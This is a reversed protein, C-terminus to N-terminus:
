NSLKTTNYIQPSLTLDLSYDNPSQDFSSTYQINTKEYWIFFHLKDSKGTVSYRLNNDYIHYAHDRTWYKKGVITIVRNLTIICRARPSFISTVRAPALNSIVFTLISMLVGNPSVYPTSKWHNCLFNPSIDLTRESEDDHRLLWIDIVEKSSSHGDFYILHIWNFGQLAFQLSFTTWRCESYMFDSTPRATVRGILNSWNHGVEIYRSLQITIDIVSYYHYYYRHHHHHIPPLRKEFCRNVLGANLM